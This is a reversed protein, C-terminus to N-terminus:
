VSNLLRTTPIAGWIDASSFAMWCRLSSCSATALRHAKQIRDTVEVATRYARGAGQATRSRQDKQQTLATLAQSGHAATAAWAGHVCPAHDITNIPDIPRRQRHSSHASARHTLSVQTLATQITGKKVLVTRAQESWFCVNEGTILRPGPNDLAIHRTPPRVACALSCVSRMERSRGSRMGSEDDRSGYAEHRRKRM